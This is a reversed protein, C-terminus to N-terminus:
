RFYIYKDMQVDIHKNRIPLIKRDDSKIFGAAIFARQSSINDERIWAIFKERFFRDVINKLGLTAYGCGRYKEFIGISVEYEQNIKNYLM